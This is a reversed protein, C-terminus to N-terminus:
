VKGGSIEEAEVSYGEVKSGSMTLAESYDHPTVDLDVFESLWKMSLNM